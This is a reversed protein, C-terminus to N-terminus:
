RQPDPPRTNDGPVATFGATRVIPTRQQPEPGPESKAHKGIVSQYKNELDAKNPEQLLRGQFGPSRRDGLPM